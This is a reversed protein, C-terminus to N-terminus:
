AHHHWEKRFQHIVSASSKMFFSIACIGAFNPSLKRITDTTIGGIAYVPIPVELVSDIEVQSRPPLNPKSPTPFIHGFFVADLEAEYARIVSSLHHTSMSVHIDPYKSKLHFAQADNERFHINQLGLTNLLKVDSHIMMKSKPFGQYILQQIFHQLEKQSMSTRFLLFDIDQEITLFHQLDNNDLFKYETIAIFIFM